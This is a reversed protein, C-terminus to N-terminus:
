EPDVEERTTRILTFPEGQGEIERFVFKNDTLTVIAYTVNDWYFKGNRVNWSSAEIDDKRVGVYMKGDAVIRYAQQPSKWYGVLKQKIAWDAPKDAKGSSASNAREYTIVGQGCAYIFYNRDLLVIPGRSVDDIYENGEIRWKDRQDDGVGYTGDARFSYVHRPSSWEGVLLQSLKRSDVNRPMPHRALEEGITAAQNAYAEKADLDPNHMIHPTMQADMEALKTVYRLRAAEDRSSAEYEAKAAELCRYDSRDKDSRSISRKSLQEKQSIIETAGNEYTTLILTEQAIGSAHKHTQPNCTDYSASFVIKQRSPGTTTANVPKVLSWVRVPWREFYEQAQKRLASNSIVGSNTYDVREAYLDAIADVDTGSYARVFAEAISEPTVENKNFSQEHNRIAEAQARQLLDYAQDRMMKNRQEPLGKIAAECDAIVGDYVAKKFKLRARSLYFEGVGSPHRAILEDYDRIAGDLDGKMKKAEARQVYMSPEHAQEIARGLDAIAGDLDGRSQKEMASKLYDPELPTRPVLQTASKIKIWPIRGPAEIKGTVAITAGRLQEVDFKLGTLDDPVVVMLLTDPLCAGMELDTHTRGHEICDVKGIVTATEGIHKRAEAASYEALTLADARKPLSMLTSAAVGVVLVRRLFTNKSMM